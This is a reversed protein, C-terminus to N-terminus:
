EDLLIVPEEYYRVQRDALRERVLNDLWRRKLEIPEDSELRALPANLRLIRGPIVFRTIGAPVTRGQAALALIMELTFKPFTVLGALDSFQAQLSVLDHNMTREVHGWEGYRQVIDSLVTLWDGPAGPARGAQLLFGRGDVTTLHGATDGHLSAEQLAEVPREVMVLNPVEELARLLEAASGGHVAHYWRHLVVDSGDPDVVQVVIHPYGLRRFATVRTAGDLIVYTDGVRATVPPNALLGDQAIREALQAVRRADHREHPVVKEIPAVELALTSATRPRQLQSLLLTCVSLAADRQADRTNAGIYPTALVRPHRILRWTVDSEAVFGDIGAGAIAGDDLAQLLAEEDVVGGQSTNILYATPKMLRLNGAHILGANGPRLPVHVSVFDSRSMLDDLDAQELGLSQALERTLRNQHVLVRMEFAKARKVVQRGIRGLGVIGLTKGALNIGLLSSKDWVGDLVRESAVSLNRALGLMLAFTHEAVAISSADPSSLTEIGRRRAAQVDVTELNGNVCAIVSLDNAAEIVTQDLRTRGSVVVAEYGQMRKRLAAPPLPLGELVDVQANEVLLAMGEPHIPDCVLIKAVL